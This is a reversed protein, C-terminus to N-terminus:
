NKNTLPLMTFMARLSPTGVGISQFAINQTSAATLLQYIGLASSGTSGIKGDCWPQALVWAVTEAGDQNAGWADDAWGYSVGESGGRGRVDQVVLVYGINTYAPGLSDGFARGYYSRILVVPFAPGGATPVYYDTELGTGDSMIVMPSHYKM